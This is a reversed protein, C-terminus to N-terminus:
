EGTQGKSVRALNCEIRLIEMGANPHYQARAGIVYPQVTDPVEM